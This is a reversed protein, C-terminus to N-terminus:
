YRPAAGILQATMLPSFVVPTVTRTEVRQYEGEAKTENAYTAGVLSAVAFLAVLMKKM